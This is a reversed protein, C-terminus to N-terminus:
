KAADERKQLFDVLYIVYKCGAEHVISALENAIRKRHVNNPILSMVVIPESKSDLGRSVTMVIHLRRDSVGVQSCVSEYLRNLEPSNDRKKDWYQDQIPRWVRILPDREYEDDDLQPVYRGRLIITMTTNSFSIKMAKAINEITSM